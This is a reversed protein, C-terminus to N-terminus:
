VERDIMRECDAIMAVGVIPFGREDCMDGHHFSYGEIAVMHAVPEEELNIKEVREVDSPQGIKQM